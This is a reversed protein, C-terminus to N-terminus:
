KPIIFVESCYLGILTAYVPGVEMKRMRTELAEAVGLGQERRGDESRITWEMQQRMLAVVTSMQKLAVSEEM